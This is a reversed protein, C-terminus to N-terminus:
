DIKIMKSTRVENGVEIQYYLMGSQDIDDANLLIANNGKGYEEKVSLIERGSVDFVRLTVDSSEPVYFNIETSGSFPNPSNYYLEIGKSSDNEERNLDLIIGIIDLDANYAESKTIESTISISNILDSNTRATFVAEFLPQNKILELIDDSNWSMTVIGDKEMVAYNDPTIDIFESQISEFHMKTDDYSLTFQFGRVMMDNQSTFPVVISESEKYNINDVKLMLSENSRSETPQHLESAIVSGNVDGIKVAIFDSEVFTQDVNNLAFSEIFPWPNTMDPFEQNKKVLRWSENGDLETHQGLILRRLNVMDSASISQSNNIDAAILKYPSDLAEVGLIHRQILVMDLTSVGNVADDGRSATIRYNDHMPMQGFQYQGSQDTEYEYDADANIHQLNVMVHGVPVDTETTIMGSIFSGSGGEPLGDCASNAQIEVRTRCFDSNGSSDFVRVEIEQVGVDDCTFRLNPSLTDQTESRKMKFTLEADPCNDSSGRDFDGAWLEVYGTSPMIVTAVEGLCYPTPAKDDELLFEQTCFDTNGCKDMATWTISHNGFPVATSSYALGKGSATAGGEFTIAYSLDLDEPATCDDTVQATLVVSVSCEGTTGNNQIEMCTEGFEPAVTNNMTIKQTYKWLGPNQNSPLKDDYQCWDVITWKRLIKYCAGDVLNFEEDEYTSAVLACNEIYELLPEGAVEPDTIAKDCEVTTNYDTPWLHAEMRFPKESKIHIEQEYADVQNGSSDWLRWHRTMKGINCQNYQHVDEYDMTYTSCEDDVEPKGMDITTIDEYCFVERHPPHKSFKAAQKDAIQARVMCSNKNGSEDLVRLVVMIEQGIDTCCFDIHEKFLPEEGDCDTGELRAVSLSVDSCFDFSGDDFSEAWVRAANDTSLTVVTNEDCVPIPPVKDIVTAKYHCRSWNGCKDYVTCVVWNEGYPMGKIWPEGGEWYVTSTDVNTYPDGGETAKKHGIVYRFDGSGCDFLIEPMKVKMDKAGCAHPDAELTVDEGYCQMDPGYKDEVKIIQYDYIPNNASATTERCWDLVTWKRLIKYSKDCLPVIQDEFTAQIKCYGENPYISRGGIAPGGTFSPDPRGDEDIDFQVADKCSISIDDPFDTIGITDKQYYIEYHCPASRNGSDDVATYSITKKAAFISYPDCDFDEVKEGLEEITFHACVDHVWAAYNIVPDIANCSITDPSPCYVTPPLKDEITVYGWCSNDARKGSVFFVQAQLTKGIFNRNVPNAVPKNKNEPDTLVVYYDDECGDTPGELVMDPTIRAECQDNIGVNIGNINCALDCNGTPRYFSYDVNYFVSCTAQQDDEKGPLQCGSFMTYVREVEYLYQGKQRIIDGYTVKFDQGGCPTAITVDSDSNDPIEDFGHYVHEADYGGNCDIKLDAMPPAILDSQCYEYNDAGGCMVAKAPDIAAIQIEYNVDNPYTLSFSGSLSPHHDTSNTLCVNDSIFTAKGTKDIAAYEGNIGQVDIVITYTGNKNDVFSPSQSVVPASCHDTEECGMRTSFKSIVGGLPGDGVNVNDSRDWIAIYYNNPTDLHHPNVMITHWMESAIGSRILSLSSCDGSLQMPADVGNGEAPNFISTGATHVNSKYLAWALHEDDELLLEFSSVFARVDFNIWVIDEGVTPADPTVMYKQYPDYYSTGRLEIEFLNPDYSETAPAVTMTTSQAGCKVIGGDVATDDIAGGEIWRSGVNYRQSAFCPTTNGCEDTVNIKIIAQDSNCPSGQAFDFSYTYIYSRVSTAETITLSGTSPDFIGAGDPQPGAWVGGPDQGALLTNLDLEIANTLPDFTCVEYKGGVGAKPQASVVVTAISSGPSCAEEPDDLSLQYQYTGHPTSSFDVASPNTLSVGSGDLDTWVATAPTSLVGIIEELNILVDEHDCITLIGDTGVTSSEVVLSLGIVGTSNCQITSFSYDITYTGVPLNAVEVEGTFSNFEVESPFPTGPNVTWQGGISSNATLLTSLNYIGETMGCAGIPDTAAGAVPIGDIVYVTITAKDGTCGGSATFNYDFMYTGPFAFQPDFEWQGSVGNFDLVSGPPNSNSATMTGGSDPAGPLGAITVLPFAPTAALNGCITYYNNEGAYRIDSVTVGVTISESLACTGLPDFAYDFTYTGPLATSFDVQTPDSVDIGSGLNDIWNGGLQEGNLLATLDIIEESFECISVNSAYGLYPPEEICNVLVTAFSKDCEGSAAFKYTFAYTGAQLDTMDVSSPDSLDVGTRSDDVWTGGADAGTLQATLDITAIGTFDKCVTVNQATGASQSGRVEIIIQVPAIACSADYEYQIIYQSLAGVGTPDFIGLAEDFATAPFGSVLSYNGGPTAGLSKIYTNLNIIESTGECIGIFQDGSLPTVDSMITLTVIAEEDACAGQNDQNYIFFYTGPSANTYDFSGTSPDLTGQNAFAGTVNWTGGTDESSLYDFLDVSGAGDCISVQGGTGASSQNYVTIEVSTTAATCNQLPGFDYVFTFVTTGTLPALASIDLESGNFAAGAAVPNGVDESWVGGPDTSVLLNFLDITETSHSCIQFTTAQGVRPPNTPIIVTIIAEDVHCGTNAGFLYSFSYSGQALGAFDVNLPDSLDVGSYDNDVWQGGADEIFLGAGTLDIMGNCSTISGGIGAEPQPGGVIITATSIAIATCGPLLSNNYQYMYTGAAVASLDVAEPGGVVLGSSLEVWQGGADEGTVVDFLNLPTISGECIYISGSTGVSPQDIVNIKLTSETTACGQSPLFTYTFEYTGNTVGAASPNFTGSPGFGASPNASWTGGPDPSGDLNQLLNIIPAGMCVSIESDIGPDKQETITIYVVTSSPGTNCNSPFGYTFGYVNNPPSSSAGAVSFAGSPSFTGGSPNGALPTWLGGEDEDSVLSYLNITSTSQSCVNFNSGTGPSLAKSGVNIYVQESVPDCEDNDITYTFVYKGNAGDPNFTNTISSFTGGSPNSPHSTWDGGPFEGFLLDHLNINQDVGPADCTKIHTGEGAQPSDVINVIVYTTGDNACKDNAYYHLGFSYSGPQVSSPYFIGEEADFGVPDSGIGNWYWKGTPPAHNLLGNLYVIDASSQCITKSKGIPCQSRVVQASLLCVASLTIYLKFKCLSAISQVFVSPTMLKSFDRM